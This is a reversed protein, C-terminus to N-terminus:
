EDIVDDRMTDDYEGYKEDLLKETGEKSEYYKLRELKKRKQLESVPKKM